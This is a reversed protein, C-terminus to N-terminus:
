SAALPADNTEAGENPDETKPANLEGIREAILDIWYECEDVDLRDIMEPTSPIPKGNEDEFLPGRWRVVNHKLLALQQGLASFRMTMQDVRGDNIEDTRIQMELLDRQLAARTRFNMKGRVWVSNTRGEGDQFDIQVRSKPDVLIGV